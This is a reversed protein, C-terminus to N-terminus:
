KTRKRENLLILKDFICIKLLNLFYYHSRHVSKISFIKTFNPIKM